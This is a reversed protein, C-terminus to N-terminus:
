KNLISDADIQVESSFEEIVSKVAEKDGKSLSVLQKELEPLKQKLKIM